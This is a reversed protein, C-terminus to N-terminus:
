QPNRAIDALPVSAFADNRGPLHRILESLNIYLTQLAVEPMASLAEPLAGEASGPLAAIAKCAPPRSISALAASIRTDQADQHPIRRAVLKEVLQSCTSQHIGLRAALDTVGLGPCRHVEQLIWMQSGPLGCRDEVERFYQRMTGYIVRFQQLVALPVQPTAATLPADDDAHPMARISISLSNYQVILTIDISKKYMCRQRHDQASAPQDRKQRWALAGTLTRSEINLEIWIKPM